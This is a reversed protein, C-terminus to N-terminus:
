YTNLTSYLADVEDPIEQFPKLGYATPNEPLVYREIFGLKKEVDYEGLANDLLIFCAVIATESDIDEVQSIFLHLGVKNNDPELSFYLQEPGIKVEGMELECDIDGRPRFALIHWGYLEPALAVLQQVAAFAEVNGDASIVFDRVGDKVPGLEFTLGSHVRFLANQLEDFLIEQNSEFHFYRASNSSFWRWFKLEPSEKKFHLRNFM